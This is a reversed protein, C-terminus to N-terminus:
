CGLNLLRLSNERIKKEESFATTVCVLEVELKQNMTLSNKIFDVNLKLRHSNDLMVGM